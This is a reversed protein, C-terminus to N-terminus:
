RNEPRDVRLNLRVGPDPDAGLYRGAFIVENNYHRTVETNYYIYHYTEYRRVYGHAQGFIRSSHRVHTQSGTRHQANAGNAMLVLAGLAIVALKAKMIVKEQSAAEVVPGIPHFSSSSLAIAM